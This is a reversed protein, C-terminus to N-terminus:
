AALQDEVVPPGRRAHPRDHLAVPLLRRGPRPHLVEGPRAKFADRQGLARLRGDRRREDALRGRVLEAAERDVADEAAGVLPRVRLHELDPARADGLDPVQDRVAPGRTGSSLPLTARTVPVAWPMPVAIAAPRSSSPAVTWRTSRSVASRLSPLCTAASTSRIPRTSM